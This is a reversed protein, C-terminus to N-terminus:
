DMQYYMGCKIGDSKLSNFFAEAGRTRRNGQGKVFDGYIIWASYNSNAFPNYEWKNFNVGAADSIKKMTTEHTGKPMYLVPSDFNCTGGDDGLLGAEIAATRAKKLANILESYKKM